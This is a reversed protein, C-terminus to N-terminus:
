EKELRRGRRGEMEVAVGVDPFGLRGEEVGEGWRGRGKWSGVLTVTM